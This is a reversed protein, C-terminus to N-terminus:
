ADFEVVVDDGDIKSPYVHVDTAYLDLSKGTALDFRARHWPCVICGEVIRGRHLDSGMHSCEDDIARLVGDVAIVCVPGHASEYTL